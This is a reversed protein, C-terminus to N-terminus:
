FPYFFIKGSNKERVVIINKIIKENSNKFELIIKGDEIFMNNINKLPVNKFIGVLKLNRPNIEFTKVLNTLSELVKERQVDYTPYKKIRFKEFLLNKSCKRLRVSDKTLNLIVKSAKINIDEIM